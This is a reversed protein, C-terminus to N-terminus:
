RTGNEEKIISEIRKKEENICNIAGTRIREFTDEFSSRLSEAKVFLGEETNISDLEKLFTESVELTTNQNILYGRKEIISCHKIAIMEIEMVIQTYETYCEKRLHNYVRLVDSQSEPMLFGVATDTIILHNLLDKIQDHILKFGQKQYMLNIIYSLHNPNYMMINDIMTKGLSDLWQRQQQYKIANIQLQRNQENEKHNDERQVFLVIFAIAFSIIAGLYDGWFSLWDTNDGVIDTIIPMLLIKNIIAPALIMFLFGAIIYWKYKVFLKKM